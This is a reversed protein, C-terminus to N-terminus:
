CPSPHHDAVFHSNPLHPRLGCGGEFHSGLSNCVKQQSKDKCKYRKNSIALTQRGSLNATRNPGHGLISGPRLREKSVHWPTVSGAPEFSLIHSRLRTEAHSLDTIFAHLWPCLLKGAMFTRCRWVRPGRAGHQEQLEASRAPQGLSRQLRVWVLRRCMAHNRSARCSPQTIHPARSKSTQYQDVRGHTNSLCCGVSCELCGESMRSCLRFCMYLSVLLKSWFKWVGGMPIRNRHDWRRGRCDEIGTSGIRWKWLWLGPALKTM